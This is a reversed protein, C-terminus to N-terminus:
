VFYTCAVLHIALSMCRRRQSKLAKKEKWAQVLLDNAESKLVWSAAWPKGTTPDIGEWQVRYRNNKEALIEIVPWMGDEESHPQTQTDEDDSAM